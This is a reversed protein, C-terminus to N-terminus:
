SQFFHINKQLQHTCSPQQTYTKSSKQYRYMENNAVSENLKMQFEGLENHTARECLLKCVETIFWSGTFRDRYSKDGHVTAFCLYFDARLSTTDDAAVREVPASGYNDGRCAQIFFIKPKSKLIESGGVMTEINERPIEQSDSSIIGSKNGHSLICCVFSDNMVKNKAKNNSDKLFQDLNKFIYEIEAKTLNNCIVPRYGLFLFTQKLNYVDRQTGVRERHNLDTFVENNIILAIGHMSSAMPYYGSERQEVRLPQPQITTLRDDDDLKLQPVLAGRDMAEFQTVKSGGDSDM